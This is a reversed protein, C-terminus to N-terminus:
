RAGCRYAEGASRAFGGGSTQSVVYLVNGGLAATDNKLARENNEPGLGSGWGSLSKVNGVFACDKVVNPNNTVRVHEAQPTISVCGAFALVAALCFRGLMPVGGFVVYPILTNANYGTVVVCALLSLAPRRPREVM